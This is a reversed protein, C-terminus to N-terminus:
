RGDPTDPPPGVVVLHLEAQARGFGEAPFHFEGGEQQVVAETPDNMYEFFKEFVPPNLIGLMRTNNAAHAFSHITGAPAQLFDGPTLVIEQGNAHIKVIGSLCFFNESHQQHFHLPIYGAKAGRTDMAFFSGGNNRGRVPYSNIQQYTEYREGLGAKSVFPEIGDPLGDRDPSLDTIRDLDRVTVGLGGALESSFLTGVSHTPNRSFVHSATSTGHESALRYLWEDTSYWYFSNIAAGGTVAFPTGAPVSASDGAIVRHAQGDFWMTLEGELVYFFSHGPTGIFPSASGGPLSVRYLAYEDGTDAFRAMTTLHWDGLDFRIGEGTRLAYPALEGPLPTTSQVKKWDFARTM